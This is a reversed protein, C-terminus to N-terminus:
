KLTTIPVYYINIEIKAFFLILNFNSENAMRNVAIKTKDKHVDFTKFSDQDKFYM